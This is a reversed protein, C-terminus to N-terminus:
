LPHKWGERVHQEGTRFGLTFERHEPTHLQYPNVLGGFGFAADYGQHWAKTNHKNDL